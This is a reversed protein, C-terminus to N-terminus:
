RTIARWAQWDEPTDLDTLAHQDPLPCLRLRSSHRLLVERAGSDGQLRLLEDRLDGPFIVPHGAIGDASSGRWISGPEREFAAMLHQLDASDIEPMDAPLVMIAGTAGAVGARISAAMGEKADLVEIIRCSLRALVARRAADESRLMVCVDTCCSIAIETQRRLLPAGDVRELLKDGGRMRTASGAALLLLRMTLM